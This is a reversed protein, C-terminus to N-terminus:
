LGYPMCQTVDDGLVPVLWADAKKLVILYAVFGGIGVMREDCLVLGHYRDQAGEEGLMKLIKRRGQMLLVCRAHPEGTLVRGMETLALPLKEKILAM